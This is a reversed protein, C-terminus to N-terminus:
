NNPVHRRNLFLHIRFSVLSVFLAKASKMRALNATVDRMARRPMIVASPFLRAKIQIPLRRRWQVKRNRDLQDLHSFTNEEM